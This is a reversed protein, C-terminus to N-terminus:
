EVVGQCIIIELQYKHEKNERGVNLAFVLVLLLQRQELQLVSDEGIVSSSNCVDLESVSVAHDLINKPLSKKIVFSLYM